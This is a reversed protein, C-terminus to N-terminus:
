ARQLDPHDGISTDLEESEEVTSKRQQWRDYAFWGVTLLLPIPYVFAASTYQIEATFDRGRSQPIFVWFYLMDWVVYNAMGSICFVITRSAVGWHPIIAALPIIWLLYWPQFWLCCLLLYFFLLEFSARQLSTHGRWIQWMQFLGILGFLLVATYLAIASALPRDLGFEALLLRLTNPLSATFMDARRGVGLPDSGQWFPIYFLLVTLATLLVSVALVLWRRPWRQSVDRLGAVWFLPLLPAALFKILLGIALGFSAIPRGWWARSRDLLLFAALVPTIMLLDNHANTAIEFLVLPNWLYLVLGRWAWQPHREGVILLILVGNAFYSFIALGKFLIINRWLQEGGLSTVGAALLEWIPGYASTAQDWAAYPFFPDNPFAAPTVAFPSAGHVAFIRARLIYDFVDAAGVPYAIALTACFVAPLFLIATPVAVGASLRRPALLYAVIYIVFLASWGGILNWGSTVTHQSIKALDLLPEAYYQQLSYPISMTGYYLAAAGIGLLWFILGREWGGLREEVMNSDSAAASM